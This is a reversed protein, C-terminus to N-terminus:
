DKGPVQIVDEKPALVTGREFDQPSPSLQLAYWPSGQNEMLDEWKVMQGTYTSIRGMIAAMTAEAVARADNLPKGERISRILERHEIMYPNGDEFSPVTVAKGQPKGDGWLSGETGVFHESVRSYTGNVQRCMSHVIVNDGYDYDISFFAFQNGTKRRARGGFGLAMKPPRGIFWNAVDINHVHQEILHDGSMETFSVWNRVMYDADSENAERAHNWLAGGCWWIRGALLRGIAGHSVAYANERYGKQYRRQTGAVVALGKQKALEGAEIIKRAGPPDVAVPKEMFVHKGAKIAAEFHVPRFAPPAATIIVDVEKLDLLKRYGDYGTFMREPTVKLCQEVPKKQETCWKKIENVANEMRGKFPDALAIIEIGQSSELCNIIAGTGRGGCGIVGVRLTDSGAAFVRSGAAGLAAVSFAMQGSTKLFDRRTQM